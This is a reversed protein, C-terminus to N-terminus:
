EDIEEIYIVWDTYHGDHKNTVRVIYTDEDANPPPNPDDKAFFFDLKVGHATTRAPPTIFNLARAILPADSSFHIDGNLITLGEHSQEIRKVIGIPIHLEASPTTVTFGNKRDGRVTCKKYGMEIQQIILKNPHEIELVLDVKYLKSRVTFVKGVTQIDFADSLGRWRNNTITALRKGQRSYFQANLQPPASSEEPPNITLLKQGEIEITTPTNVFQIGGLEIILPETGIDLRFESGGSQLAKPNKKGEIAREKRWLGRTINGHCEKCLIAMNDPNHEKAEAFPPDIHEYEYVANGCIVCGFGAEQRLQRQIADPIDRGLGYKNKKAVM